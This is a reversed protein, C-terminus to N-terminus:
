YFFQTHQANQLIYKLLFMTHKTYGVICLETVFNQTHQTLREQRINESILINNKPNNNM